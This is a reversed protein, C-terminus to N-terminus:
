PERASGGNAVGALFTLTESACRGWSYSQVREHGIQSRRQRGEVDRAFEGLAPAMAEPRESEFFAAAEGLIQPMPGHRLCAIPLGAAMAELLVNPMNECTSAFVFADAAHYHAPLESYPVGGHYRIAEGGPDVRRMTELLHRLAPAYAPGVLDLRIPLGQRRLQAVAEAVRWQHKYVDVKSVYLFRFPSEASYEGIPRQRRPQLCFRHDVGHPIITSCGRLDGLARTVLVRAHENLFIVGSAGRLSRAHVARLALNRLLERSLGYRRREVPDFPLANRFMTADPRFRGTYGGGPTFLLDCREAARHRLVRARWYERKALAGDLLPQHVSDLWPRSPVQALTSRSGWIVVSSIGQEAPEAAGLLQVIHTVGGGERLNSADIGLRV